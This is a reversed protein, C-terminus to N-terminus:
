FRSEESPQARNWVFSELRGDRERGIARAFCRKPGAVSSLYWPIRNESLFQEDAPWVKEAAAGAAIPEDGFGGLAPRLAKRQAGEITQITLQV